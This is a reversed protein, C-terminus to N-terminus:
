NYEETHTKYKYSVATVDTLDNLLLSSAARFGIIYKHSFARTLACGSTVMLGYKILCPKICM